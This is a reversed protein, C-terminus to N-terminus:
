VGIIIHASLAVTIDNTIPMQPSMIEALNGMPRILSLGTPGVQHHHHHPLPKLDLSDLISTM